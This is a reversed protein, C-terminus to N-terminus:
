TGFVAFSLQPTAFHKPQAQSGEKRLSIFLHSYIKEADFDDLVDHQELSIKVSVVKSAAM